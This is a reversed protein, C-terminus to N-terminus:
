KARGQRFQRHLTQYPVSAAIGIQRWSLGAVRAAEVAADFQERAKKMMTSSDAITHLLEHALIEKQDDAEARSLALATESPSAM